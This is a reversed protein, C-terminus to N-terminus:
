AGTMQLFLNFITDGYEDRLYKGWEYELQLVLVAMEGQEKETWSDNQAKLWIADLRTVANQISMPTVLKYYTNGQIFGSVYSWSSKFQPAIDRIRDASIKYNPLIKTDIYTGLRVTGCGPILILLVAVIFIQFIRKM